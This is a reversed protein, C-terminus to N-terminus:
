LSPKSSALRSEAARLWTITEDISHGSLQAAAEATLTKAASQNIAPQSNQTSRTLSPLAEAQQKLDAAAASASTGAAKAKELRAILDRTAALMARRREVLQTVKEPLGATAGDAYIAATLHVYDPVAGVTMNSIPIKKEAGPAIPETLLDDEWLQYYSGPYRVLEVLFATLPPQTPADKVFLISSQLAPEVRLAPLPTEGLLASCAFLLPITPKIM